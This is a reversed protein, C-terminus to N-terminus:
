LRIQMRVRLRSAPHINSSNAAANAASCAGFAL